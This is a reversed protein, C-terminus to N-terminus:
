TRLRPSGFPQRDADENEDADNEDAENKEAQDDSDESQTSSRVVTASPSVRIGLKDLLESVEQDRLADHQDLQKQTEKAELGLTQIQSQFNKVKSELGEIRTKLLKLKASQNVRERQYKNLIADVSNSKGTPKAKAKTSRKSKSTSKSTAKKKKRTAPTKRAQKAM